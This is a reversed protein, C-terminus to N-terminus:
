RGEVLHDHDIKGSTWEKFQSLVVAIFILVAGFIQIVALREDLLLWGSLVAFVSELSLILAADAPPTHQQAWVQLTYCLGLSFFATYGIAFALQWNFTMMSESVLGVGLNLVGCVLLQGVSFSMAEFKAAFKGIIIVHFTWFLAGVVELADGKQVEFRGGTSLLFAGVGALVVAVVSMWHPKERWFFFLAFPVLVVYLATIFGANGATTYVMGAQQLASGAFLFFGAIFMWKYQDHPMSTLNVRKVFPLVVLAALVYRAGNFLYVSGQQGAVRQAVFASGWIISVVLLTLDAKLRM